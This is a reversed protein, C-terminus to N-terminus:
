GRKRPYKYSGVAQAVRQGAADLIEGEGFAISRGGMTARTHVTIRGEAARIFNATLSITYTKTLDPDLTSATAGMATDLLCLLLGGHARGLSNMHMPELDMSFVVHGKEVTELRVGQQGFVLGILTQFPSQWDLFYAELKDM